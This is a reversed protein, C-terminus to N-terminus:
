KPVHSAPVEWQLFRRRSGFLKTRVHCTYNYYKVVGFDAMLAPNFVPTRISMGDGGWGGGQGGAAGVYLLRLIRRFLWKGREEIKVM